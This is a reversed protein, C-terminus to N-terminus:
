QASAEFLVLIKHKVDLLGQVPSLNGGTVGRSLRFRELTGGKEITVTTAGIVALIGVTTVSDVDTMTSTSTALGTELPVLDSHASGRGVSICPKRAVPLVIVVHPISLALKRIVVWPRGHGVGLAGSPVVPPDILQAVEDRVWAVNCGALDYPGPLLKWSILYWSIRHTFTIHLPNDVMVKSLAGRFEFHLDLGEWIISITREKSIAMATAPHQDQDVKKGTGGKM